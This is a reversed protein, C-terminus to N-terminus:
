GGLRRRILSRPLVYFVALFVYIALSAWAFHIMALLLALAYFVRGSWIGDGCIGSNRPILPPISCGTEPSPIGSCCM